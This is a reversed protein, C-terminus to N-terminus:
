TWDFVPSRSRRGSRKKMLPVAYKTCLITGRINSAMCADWAAMDMDEANSVPGTVGANNVLIDLGGFRKEIEAFLAKVATEEAADGAIAHAGTRKASAELREATRGSVVVTAGAQVFATAIAEGIGTGGGTVLAVKGSLQMGSATM